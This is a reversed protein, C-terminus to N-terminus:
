RISAEFCGTVQRANGIVGPLRALINQKELRRKRNYPTKKEYINTLSKETRKESLLMVIKMKMMQHYVQMRITKNM